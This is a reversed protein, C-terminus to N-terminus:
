ECSANCIKGSCVFLGMVQFVVLLHSAFTLGSVRFTLVLMGLPLGTDTNLMDPNRHAINLKEGM